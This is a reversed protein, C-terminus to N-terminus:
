APPSDRRSLRSIQALGTMGPKVAHRHFYRNDIKWFVDNEATSGLAHPRPGVISMDGLIVNVLQPLEDLSTRRIFKGVSTIREDTRSASRMGTPDANAHAFSRFKLLNFLRNNRGVRQQRFLVPGGSDVMIAVSVALMVPSLILLATSAMALDLARKLIRDRVNLPRASVQLTRRGDFNGIALAEFQDLEPSVIEVDVAASKLAHSWQPRRSESCAVVVSDCGELAHGLRDLAVPNDDGLVIGSSARRCWWRAPSRRCSWAM